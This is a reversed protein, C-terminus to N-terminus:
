SPPGHNQLPQGVRLDLKCFREINEQCGRDAQVITNRLVRYGPRQASEVVAAVELTSHWARTTTATSGQGEQSYPTAAV